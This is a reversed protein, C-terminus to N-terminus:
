MLKYEYVDEGFHVMLIRPPEPLLMEELSDNFSHVEKREMFYDTAMKEYLELTKIKFGDLFKELTPSNGCEDVMMRIQMCKKPDSCPVQRPSSPLVRVVEPNKLWFKLLTAIRKKCKKLVDLTEELSFIKTDLVTRPLSLKKYVVDRIKLKAHRDAFGYSNKYDLIKGVERARFFPLGDSSVVVVLPSPMRAHTMKFFM